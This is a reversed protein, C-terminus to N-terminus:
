SINRRRKVCGGSAGEACAAGISALSTSLFSGGEALDFLSMEYGTVSNFFYVSLCFRINIVTPAHM